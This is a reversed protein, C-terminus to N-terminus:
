GFVRARRFAYACASLLTALLALTWAGLTPVAASAAAPPSTLTTMSCQNGAAACNLNLATISVTNTLTPTAQRSLTSDVTVSIHLDVSGGAPVVVDSTNACSLGTCTFDTSSAFTVGAPLNEQLFGAYVTIDDSSPNNVAITYDVADRPQTIRTQTTSGNVDAVSKDVTLPSPPMGFFYMESSTSGGGTTRASSIQVGCVQDSQIVIGDVANTSDGGTLIAEIHWYRNPATGQISYAPPTSTAPLSMQLFTFGGSDVLNGGCDVFRYDVTESADVDAIFFVSGKPLPQDFMLSSQDASANGTEIKGVSIGDLGINAPLTAFGPFPVSPDAQFVDGVNSSPSNTGTLTRGAMSLDTSSDGPAYVISSASPTTFETFVWNAFYNSNPQVVQVSQAQAACVGAALTAALFLKSFIRSSARAAGSFKCSTVSPPTFNQM